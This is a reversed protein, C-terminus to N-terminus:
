RAQRAADSKEAPPLPQRLAFDYRCGPPLVRVSLHPASTAVSAAQELTAAMAMGTGVVRGEGGPAVLMAAGEDIALCVSGAPLAFGSDAGAAIAYLLRGMQGTQLFQRDVLTGRLLGLGGELALGTGTIDEGEQERARLVWEGLVAAGGGIGAVTAGRRHAALIATMAATDRLVDLLLGEDGGGFFILDAEALRGVQGPDDARRRTVLDTREVHQAGFRRFSRVYREGGRTFDLSATPVIVIRASRGGALHIMELIVEDPLRTGGILVLHGGSAPSFRGQGDERGDHRAAVGEQPRAAAGTAARGQRGRSPFLISQSLLRAAETLAEGINWLTSM